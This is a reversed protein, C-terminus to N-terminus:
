EYSVDIRAIPLLPGKDKLPILSYASVFNLIQVRGNLDLCQIRWGSNTRSLILADKRINSTLM